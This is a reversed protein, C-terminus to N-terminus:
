FYLEPKGSSTSASHKTKHPCTFFAMNVYLKLSIKVSLDTLTALSRCFVLLGELLELIGGAVKSVKETDLIGM